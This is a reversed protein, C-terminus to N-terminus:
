ARNLPGPGAAFVAPEASSGIVEVGAEQTMHFSAPAFLCHCTQQLRDFVPLCPGAGQVSSRSEQSSPPALAPRRPAQRGAGLAPLQHCSMQHALRAVPWCRWRRAQPQKILVLSELAPKPSIGNRTGLEFTSLTPLNTSMLLIIPQSRSGLIGASSLSEHSNNATPRSRGRSASLRGWLPQSGRISRYTERIWPNQIPRARCQRTSSSISLNSYSEKPTPSRSVPHLHPQHLGDAM